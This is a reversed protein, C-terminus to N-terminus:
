CCQDVSRLDEDVKDKTTSVDVFFREDHEEFLLVDQQTGLTRMYARYPRGSDNCRTYLLTQSDNAWALSRVREIVEPLMVGTGFDRVFLTFQETGSCDLTFAGLRDDPSVKFVGVDAGNGESLEDILSADILVSERASVVHRRMIAQFKDGSATTDRYYEYAGSVEPVSPGQVTATLKNLHLAWRDALARVGSARLVRELFRTELRLQADVSDTRMWAYEDPLSRGLWLLAGERLAAARPARQLLLGVLRQRLWRSVM